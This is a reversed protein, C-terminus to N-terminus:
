KDRGYYSKLWDWEFSLLLESYKGDVSDYYEVADTAGKISFEAFDGQAKTLWTQLRLSNNASPEHHDNYVLKIVERFATRWTTFPDINFHAVGSVIPVVESPRSLTFDLGWDDTELVLRKNYAILGQHGYELGNVPNHSYFIYHKDQQQKGPHWNWNFNPNIKLKAFVTFFWETQSLEAAAKYAAARGNIGSVRYVTQDGKPANQLLHDWNAQEDREGNGIYVIDLPKQANQTLINVTRESETRFFALSERSVITASGTGISVEVPWTKQVWMKPVYNSVDTQDRVFIAYPFDFQVNSVAQELPTDDIHYIAPCAIRPVIQDSTYSINFWDLSESERAQINFAKTNIYFTDGFKQDTTAFSHVMDLQSDDPKWGFDFNAYDCISNIFWLNPQISISAEQVMVHLYSNVFDVRKVNLGIQRLYDLQTKSEANGHDIYIVHQFIAPCEFRTVVTPCEFRSVTQDTTYNIDFWYLSERAQFNFAKTNVYFTDGSKQNTTAFSHVMDLKSEDPKWGFDFNTYDCVSNIFWLYPQISLSCVQAMVHLYSNVFDVRNVNLGIQRLHDLQIKSDANGHDIYIVNQFIAPCEFKTVVAPCEFRSVTQDTTYNIDFWYLSERAKMDFDRTNVYFTDGFKQNTTAIAHVMDLQSEDPHWSFDFNTYDCVSNIFWLYPQISLSCVQAMVHLYSNFFDVRKVNLGLQHLHELQIKSDANGHDIFIVNAQDEKRHAKFITQYHDGAPTLKSRFVGGGNRQWQTAFIHQYHAEWPDPQWTFDFQSYDNGGDLYWFFKTKSLRAAKNISTAQKEHPFLGTPTHEYFVDYM